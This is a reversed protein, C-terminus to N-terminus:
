EQISYTINIITQKFEDTEEGWDAVQKTFTLSYQQLQNPRSVFAV